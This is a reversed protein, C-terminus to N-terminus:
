RIGTPLVSDAKAVTCGCEGDVTLVILESTGTNTFKFEAKISTADVEATANIETAEFEVAGSSRLPLLALGLGAVRFILM